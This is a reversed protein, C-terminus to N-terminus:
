GAPRGATDNNALHVAHRHGPRRWRVALPLQTGVLPLHPDGIPRADSIPAV